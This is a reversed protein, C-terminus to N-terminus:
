EGGLSPGATLTKSLRRFARSAAEPPSPPQSLHRPSSTVTLWAIVPSNWEAAQFPSAMESPSSRSRRVAHEFLQGRTYPYGLAEGAPDTPQIHRGGRYSNRARCAKLAGIEDLTAVMIAKRRKAEEDEPTGILRELEEIRRELSM